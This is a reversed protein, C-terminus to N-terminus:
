LEESVWRIHLVFQFPGYIELRRLTKRIFLSPGKLASISVEDKDPM